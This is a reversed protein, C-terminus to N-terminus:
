REREKEDYRKKELAQQMRAFSHIFSNDVKEREKRHGPREREEKLEAREEVM